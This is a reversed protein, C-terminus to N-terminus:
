ELNENVFKYCKRMGLFIAQKKNRDKDIFSDISKPHKSIAYWDDANVNVSFTLGLGLVILLYALLRKM